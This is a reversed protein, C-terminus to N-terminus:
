CWLFPTCFITSTSPNIRPSHIDVAGEEDYDESPNAASILKWTNQEGQARMPIDGTTRGEQESVLNHSKSQTFYSHAFVEHEVGYFNRTYCDPYQGQFHDVALWKGTHVHKLLLPQNTVVPEGVMEFRVKPDVHEFEWLTVNAAKNSLLVEQQNSLKSFSQQSMMPSTLYLQYSASRVQNANEFLRPNALIRVKDGYRILKEKSPVAKEIRFVSRIIPGQNKGGTM